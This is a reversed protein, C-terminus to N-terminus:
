FTSFVICLLCVKSFGKVFTEFHPIIYIYPQSLSLCMTVSVHRYITMIREKRSIERGKCFFWLFNTCFALQCVEFFTTYNFLLLPSPCLDSDRLADCSHPAQAATSLFPRLPHWSGDDGGFVVYFTQAFHWNVFRLFHPIIFSYYPCSGCGGM